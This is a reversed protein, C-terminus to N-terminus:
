IDERDGRTRPNLCFDFRTELLWHVVNQFSNAGQRPFIKIVFASTDLGQPYQGTSEWTDGPRDKEPPGSGIFNREMPRIKAEAEGRRWSNNRAAPMAIVTCGVLMGSTGRSPSAALTKASRSARSFAQAMKLCRGVSKTSPASVTTTTSLSIRPLGRLGASASRMSRRSAPRLCSTMVATETMPGLDLGGAPSFFSAARPSVRDSVVTTVM